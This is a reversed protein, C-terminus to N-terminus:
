RCGSCTSCSGGSCSRGASSDSGSSDDKSSSGGMRISNFVRVMDKSGCVKCKIEESDDSKLYYESIANCDNCKYDVFKM